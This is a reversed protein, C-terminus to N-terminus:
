RAPRCAVAVVHELAEAAVVRQAAVVAVVVQVAAGAGVGHDAAEAVVGVDDVIGAVRHGFGAALADVHHAGAHAPGHRGAGVDLRQLGGVVGARRRDVQGAVGAAVLDDAVVAVVDDVAAAADVLHDAAAAVVGVEDVVGVVRDGFDAALADVCTRVLTLQVRVAPASTSVSRVVLSAPTPAILRVPLELPLM